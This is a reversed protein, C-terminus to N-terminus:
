NLYVNEIYVHVDTENCVISVTGGVYDEFYSAPTGNWTKIYDLCNQYSESWGKCSTNESDNFQIDFTLNEM